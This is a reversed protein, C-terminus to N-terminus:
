LNDGDNTGQPRAPAPAAERLAKEVAEQIATVTDDHLITGGDAAAEYICRWLDVLMATAPAAGGGGSPNKLDGLADCRANVAASQLESCRRCHEIRCNQLHEDRTRTLRLAAELQVERRSPAAGGAERVPDPADTTM